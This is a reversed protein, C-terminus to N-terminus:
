ILWFISFMKLINGLTNKRKYVIMQVGCTFRFCTEKWHKGIGSLASSQSLTGPGGSTWSIVTDIFRMLTHLMRPTVSVPLTSTSPSFGKGM